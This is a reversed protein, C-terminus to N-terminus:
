FKKIFSIASWFENEPNVTEEFTWQHNLTLVFISKLAYVGGVLSAVSHSIGPEVGFAGHHYVLNATAGAYQYTAGPILIKHARYYEFLLEQQFGGLFLDDRDDAWYNLYSVNYSPVLYSGGLPILKPMSVGLQFKNGHKMSSSVEDGFADTKTEGNPFIWYDAFGHLNFSYQSEQFFDRSYMLFFDHEDYKKSERKTQISNWYMLSFGTSYLQAKGAYQLVPSDGVHFGDIMYQSALTLDSVFRMRDEEASTVSSSQSLAQNAFLSVGLFIFISVFSKM